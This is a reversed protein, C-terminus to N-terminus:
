WAVVREIRTIPTTQLDLAIEFWDRAVEVDDTPIDAVMSHHAGTTDTCPGLSVPCKGTVKNRPNHDLTAKIKVTVIWLM